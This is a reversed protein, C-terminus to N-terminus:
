DKSEQKAVPQSAKQSLSQRTLFLSSIILAIMMVSVESVATLRTIVGPFLISLLFLSAPTVALIASAYVASLTVTRRPPLFEPSGEEQVSLAIWSIAAMPAILGIIAAMLPSADLITASEMSAAAAAGIVLAGIVSSPRYSYFIGLVLGFAGILYAVLTLASMDSFLALDVIAIASVAVSVTEFRDTM